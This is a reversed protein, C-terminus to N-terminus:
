RMEMSSTRAKAGSASIKVPPGAVTNSGLAGM